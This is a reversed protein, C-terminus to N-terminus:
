ESRLAVFREQAPPTAALVAGWAEVGRPHDLGPPMVGVITQEVGTGHSTVRRGVVDPAGGYRERWARHSLVLVPAAGHVDDAPGLARGLLPRAGLVDFYDGSVTATRLRSVREGERVAVPAAGYYSVFAVGALARTTAALERSQDLTLPWSEMRGDPTSGSLVVLREQAAVPLRQLLLADAVTYVATALGIGLALTLAAALTFGPTRALSRVGLRLDSLPTM